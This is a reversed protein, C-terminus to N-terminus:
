YLAVIGSATTGTANVRKVGLPYVTRADLAFVVVADDLGVCAVDGASTVFLGRCAPKLNDAAADSPTVAKWTTAPNTRETM